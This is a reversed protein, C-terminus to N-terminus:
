KNQRNNAIFEILESKIENRKKQYDEYLMVREEPPHKMYEQHLQFLAIKSQEETM